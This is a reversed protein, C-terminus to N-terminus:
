PCCISILELCHEFTILSIVCLPAELFTDYPLSPPWQYSHPGSWWFSFLCFILFIIKLTKCHQTPNAFWINCSCVFLVHSQYILLNIFLYGVWIYIYAMYSVSPCTSCCTKAIGWGSASPLPPALWLLYFLNADFWQKRRMTIGKM